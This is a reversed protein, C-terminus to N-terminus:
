GGAAGRIRRRRSPEGRGGFGLGLGVAPPDGQVALLALGDGVDLALQDGDGVITHEDERVGPEHLHPM